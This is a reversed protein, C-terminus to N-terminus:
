KIIDHKNIYQPNKIKNDIQRHETYISIIHCSFLKWKLKLKKNYVLKLCGFRDIHISEEIRKFNPFM